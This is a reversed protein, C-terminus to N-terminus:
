LALLFVIYALNIVFYAVVGAICRIIMEAIGLIALPLYVLSSLFAITKSHSEYNGFRYALEAFSFVSWKKDFLYKHADKYIHSRQFRGSGTAYSFMLESGSKKKWSARSVENNPVVENKNLAIIISALLDRAAIPFFPNSSNREVLDDFLSKCIEQTNQFVSVPDRGDAIVEEYISWRESM